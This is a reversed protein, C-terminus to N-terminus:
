KPVSKAQQQHRDGQQQRQAKVGVPLFVLQFPQQAPKRNGRNKGHQAGGGCGKPQGLAPPQPMAPAAPASQIM